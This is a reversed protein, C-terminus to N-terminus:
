TRRNYEIILIKNESIYLYKFLVIYKYYNNNINSM